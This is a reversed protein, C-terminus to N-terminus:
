SRVWEKQNPDFHHAQGKYDNEVFELNGNFHFGAGRLFMEVNEVVDLLHEKEFELTAKEGTSHEAILTFKPM